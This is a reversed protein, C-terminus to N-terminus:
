ISSNYCRTKKEIKRIKRQVSRLMVEIETCENINPNNHAYRCYLSLCQMQTILTMSQVHHRQHDTNINM